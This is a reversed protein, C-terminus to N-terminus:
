DYSAGVGSGGTVNGTINVTGTTHNCLLVYSSVGSTRQNVLNAVINRAATLLFYGAGSIQLQDCSINEDITVTYAAAEATDGVGPKVGGIWTGAASWNGTAGATILAM